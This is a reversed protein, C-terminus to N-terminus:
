AWSILSFKPQSKVQWWGDVLVKNQHLDINAQLQKLERYSSSMLSTM